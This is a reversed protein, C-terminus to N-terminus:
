ADFMRVSLWNGAVPPRSGTQDSWVSRRGRVRGGQGTVGVWGSQGTVELLCLCDLFPAITVLDRM